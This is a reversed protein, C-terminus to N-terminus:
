LRLHRSFREYGHSRGNSQTEDHRDGAVGLVLLPFGLRAKATALATAFAPGRRWGPRRRSSGIAFDNEIALRRAFVADPCWPNSDRLRRGLQFVHRELWPRFGDIVIALLILELRVRAAFRGACGPLEHRGVAHFKGVERFEPPHVDEIDAPR